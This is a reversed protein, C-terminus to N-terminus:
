GLNGLIMGGATAFLVGALTVYAAKTGPAPEKFLYIGYLASIVVALQSITFGKGAGAISILLLSGYNGIGFIVGSLLVKYYDKKRSLKINRRSFIIMVLSGGLIGLSMPFAAIWM